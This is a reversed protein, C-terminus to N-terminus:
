SPLVFVGQGEGVGASAARALPPTGEGSDADGAIAECGNLSLVVTGHSVSHRAVVHRPCKKICRAIQRALISGIRRLKIPPLGM